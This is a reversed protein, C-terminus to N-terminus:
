AEKPVLQGTSEAVHEPPVPCPAVGNTVRHPADERLHPGRNHQREHGASGERKRGM